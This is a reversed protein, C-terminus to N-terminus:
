SLELQQTRAVGLDDRVGTEDPELHIFFLMTELSDLCRCADLLASRFSAYGEETYPLKVSM